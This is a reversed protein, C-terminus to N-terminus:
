RAIPITSTMSHVRFLRRQETPLSGSRGSDKYLIVLYTVHEQPILALIQPCLIAAPGSSHSLLRLKAKPVELLAPFAKVPGVTAPIQRSIPCLRCSVSFMANRMLASLCWVPQLIVRLRYLPSKEREPFSSVIKFM